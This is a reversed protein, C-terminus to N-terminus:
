RRIRERLWSNWFEASNSYNRDFSYYGGVLKNFMASNFSSTIYTSQGLFVYYNGKRDIKRLTSLRGIVDRNLTNELLEEALENM